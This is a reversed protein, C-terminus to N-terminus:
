NTGNRSDHGFIWGISKFKDNEKYAGPTVGLLRFTEQDEASYHGEAPLHGAGAAPTTATASPAADDFLYPKEARFAAIKARSEETLMMSSDLEIMSDVLPLFTETDKLGPLLEIARARRLQAVIAANKTELANVQQAHRDANAIKEERTAADADAATREHAIKLKAEAEAARRVADTHERVQEANMGLTMQQPTRAPAPAAQTAPEPTTQPTENTTEENM